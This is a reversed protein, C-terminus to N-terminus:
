RESVLRLLMEGPTSVRLKRMLRARHADVTRPSIGLERAIQKSSQGQSLLQAIQRERGTLPATVPRRESIDEFMWVACAFPDDQHMPRGVVHVWFVEGNCRKMIREDYYLGKDRMVPLGRQGIQIFEEMSPYLVSMSQGALVQADYGFMEGFARNCRQIVRNRSVCLGVPALDFALSLDDVSLLSSPPPTSNMPTPDPAVRLYPCQPTPRRIAPGM